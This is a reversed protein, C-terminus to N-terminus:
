TNYPIENLQAIQIRGAVGSLGSLTVFGRYIAFKHLWEVDLLKGLKNNELMYKRYKIILYESVMIGIKYIGAEAAYQAIMQCALHLGSLKKRREKPTDVSKLCLLYDDIICEFYENRYDSEDIFYLAKRLFSQMEAGFIYEDFLYKQVDDVLKDINWFEIQVKMGSWTTNHNIYGEWSPRVAEDIVGNAAVIIHLEKKRDKGKIFEIYTDQIDNLSQRVANQDSDWNRRNLNGQKVITLLIENDNYARIDVGYQRNGTKPKNDTIYGMQFLLDCLLLDLEDKEKLQLLYDKIVLRM